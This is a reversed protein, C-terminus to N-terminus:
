SNGQQSESREEPYTMLRSRVRATEYRSTEGECRELAMGGRASDEHMAGSSGVDWATGCLKWPADIPCRPMLEDVDDHCRSNRRRQTQCQVPEAREAPLRGSRLLLDDDHPSRVRLGGGRVTVVGRPPLDDAGTQCGGERYAVAADGM